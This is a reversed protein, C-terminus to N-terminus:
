NLVSATSDWRDASTPERLERTITSFGVADRAAVVPVITRTAAAGAILENDLGNQGV